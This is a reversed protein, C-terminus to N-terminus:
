QYHRADLGPIIALLEGEKNLYGSEPDYEVNNKGDVKRYDLVDEQGSFDEIIQVGGYQLYFRDKGCGGSLRNEGFGGIIKDDGAGGEITDDGDGGDLVHKQSKSYSCGDYDVRIEDDGGLGFVKPKKWDDYVRNQLDFEDNQENHGILRGGKNLQSLTEKRNADIDNLILTDIKIGKIKDMAIGTQMGDYHYIGTIAKLRGRAIIEEDPRFRGKFTFSAYYGGYNWDVSATIESKSTASLEYIPGGVKSEKNIVGLLVNRAYNLHDEFWAEASDVESTTMKAATDPRFRTFSAM